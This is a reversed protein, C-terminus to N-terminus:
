EGWRPFLDHELGLSDVIKGVVFSILQSMDKPLHYFAPSAPLIHVGVQSLKLMNELHITSLPSERPVIILKRREKMMVDAARAMLNDSVGTALSGVTKMSCPVIVMADCKFSGSAIPAFMDNIEHWRAYKELDKRTVGCEYKIVKEGTETVVVHVEVGLSALVRVTSVGYISGSAGTIGVVVRM